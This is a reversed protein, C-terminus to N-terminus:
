HSAQNKLTEFLKESDHIVEAIERDIKQQTINKIKIEISPAIKKSM